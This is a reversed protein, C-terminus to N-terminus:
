RSVAADIPRSTSSYVHRRVLIGLLAAAVLPALPVHLGTAVGRAFLPLIYTAAIVSKEWPLFGAARGRRYLHAIPIALLMLDYDFLYPTALVTAAVATPGATDLDRSRRILWVLAGAAVLASLGQVTYAGGISGGLLRIAAFVSQMRTFALDDYELVARALPAAAFYARWIDVGFALTATLCFALGTASASLITKWQGSALLMLPLMLGLQPKWVLAGFAVGALWPRRELQLLGAAFLATTLFANQGHIVNVLVAPFALMAVTLGREGLLSRLTWWCAYGGAALWTGLSILYPALALPLCILLYPPPYFFPLFKDAAWGFAATQEAYFRDPDYAVAAHGALALKSAIWYNIFDPGLGKGLPDVGGNMLAAIAWGCVLAASVALLFRPYVRARTATLWDANSFIDRLRGLLRLTRTTEITTM